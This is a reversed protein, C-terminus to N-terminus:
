EGVIWNVNNEKGINTYKNITNVRNVYADNKNIDSLYGDVTFRVTDNFNLM